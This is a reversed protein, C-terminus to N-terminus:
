SIGSFREFFAKLRDIVNQKKFARNGNGFRSIPPLLVNIDTGVTKVEGMKMSTAIFMRTEEPKLNEEVIIRQLEKEREDVVFQRWEDIVDYVKNVHNKGVTGLRTLLESVESPTYFEGGSKGANSAYMTMLYEYADGFTDNHHDCIDGLNMNAIGDLLMTLRQNRKAVNESIYRYFM